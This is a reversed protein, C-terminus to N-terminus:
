TLDTLLMFRFIQFSLLPISIYSPDCRSKGSDIRSRPHKNSTIAKVIFIDGARRWRGTNQLPAWKLNRYSFSPGVCLETTSQSRAFFGEKETTSCFLRSHFFLDTSIVGLLFLNEDVVFMSRKLATNSERLRFLEPLCAERVWSAKSRAWWWWWKNLRSDEETFPMATPVVRRSLFHKFALSLLM